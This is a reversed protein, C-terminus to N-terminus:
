IRLAEDHQPFFSLHARALDAVLQPEAAIGHDTLHVAYCFGL